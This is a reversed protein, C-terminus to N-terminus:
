KVLVGLEHALYPAVAALQAHDITAGRLASWGVIEILDSTRLDVQKCKTREFVTKELTCSEFTVDHLTAGLFDTEVLTCDIFKARRIDAFRFNAMDLKCGRFTVDHLTAKSFDVGTMRCNAFEGRNVVGDAISTSSLDSQRFVVDRATMRLLQAQLFVVKEFVSSEIDMALVTRKTADIDLLHLGDIEGELVDNLAGDALQAPIVPRSLKM